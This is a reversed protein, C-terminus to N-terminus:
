PFQYRMQPVQIESGWSAAFDLIGDNNYDTPFSHDAAEYIPM